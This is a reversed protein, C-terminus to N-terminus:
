FINNQIKKRTFYKKLFLKTHGIYVNKDFSNVERVRDGRFLCSIFTLNNVQGMFVMIIPRKENKCTTVSSTTMNITGWSLRGVKM